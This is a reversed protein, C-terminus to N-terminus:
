PAHVCELLWDTVTEIAVKSLGPTMQVPSVSLIRMDNGGETNPSLLYLGNSGEIKASCPLM